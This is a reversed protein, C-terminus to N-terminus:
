FDLSNDWSKVGHRPSLILRFVLSDTARTDWHLRCCRRKAHRHFCPRDHVTRDMKQLKLYLAPWMIQDLFGCQRAVSDLLEIKGDGKLIVAGDRTGSFKESQDHMNTIALISRSRELGPEKSCFISPLRTCFSRDLASQGHCVHMVVKAIKPPNASYVYM